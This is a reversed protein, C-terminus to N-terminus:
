SILQFKFPVMDPPAGYSGTSTHTSLPSRSVPMQGVGAGVIDGVEKVAAGDVVGAGEGIGVVGIGVAIGVGIAM